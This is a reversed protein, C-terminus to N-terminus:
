VYERPREQGRLVRLCGQAMALLEDEGPYILVPAIFRVYEKIWSTLRAFNALGGTLVIARVKGALVTAMGGIEKSVQYAMGKAILEAKEDGANIREDIEMGDNTGLYAVLGSSRRIKTLLEEQSYKGSFALSVLDGVPLTGSREPSYPGMENANNVDVISGGQLPAVSIGGGLHVMLLNIDRLDQGLDAAARRAVAKINLAHSPSRRPIEPLGSIRALPTFEDVSVPDVIFAPIQRPEALRHAILGGLNSAHQGQVGRRLDKEMAANVTYTGGPIPKLMGGRGVVANLNDIGNSELWQAVLETRYDLQDYIVPALENADHRLLASTYLSEDEFIGLKTSTSGPNVALIWHTM